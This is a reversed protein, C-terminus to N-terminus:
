GLQDEEAGFGVAFELELYERRDLCRRRAARGSLLAALGAAARAVRGREPRAASPVRAPRLTGSPGARMEHPTRGARMLLTFDDRNHQM